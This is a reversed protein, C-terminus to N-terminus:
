DRIRPAGSNRFAKTVIIKYNISVNTYTFPQSKQCTTFISLVVTHLSGWFYYV